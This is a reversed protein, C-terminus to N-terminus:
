FNKAQKLDTLIILPNYLGWGTIHNNGSSHCGSPQKTRDQYALFPKMSQIEQNPSHCQVNFSHFKLYSMKSNFYPMNNLTSACNLTKEQIKRKEYRQFYRKKNNNNKSILSHIPQITIYNVDGLWNPQRQLEM